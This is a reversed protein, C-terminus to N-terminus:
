QPRARRKDAAAGAYGTLEVYGDGAVPDQGAKGSVHVAGEWYRVSLDMEQDRLYPRLELDLAEGPLRVRWGSPYRAGDGPSAWTDLVAIAVDQSSLRRASGSAGVLTGVSHPDPSGDRRRLRYYMLERGDDLQLAFWDWGAQDEGLARSSWERDMWALGEVAHRADGTRVTGSAAMRTLSYYYSANGPTASKQLLGDEGQLVLPKLSELALDVAFEDQQARISLGPQRPGGGRGEMVWDEVWVKLPEARAGALGVAARAFREFSHFRRAQVDTLAFHGMYVQDTAWPSARQPAKPVLAFRFFTLQFGFHRGQATHLNGTLYWWESRYEPHPGHDLPFAFARPREARAFGVDDGALADALTLQAQAPESSQRASGGDLLTVLVVPVAIGLFLLAYRVVPLIATSAATYDPCM